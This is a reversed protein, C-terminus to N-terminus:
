IYHTHTDLPYARDLSKLREASTGIDFKSAIFWLLIVSVALKAAFIIWSKKM